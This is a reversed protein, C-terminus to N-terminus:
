RNISPLDYAMPLHYEAQRATNPSDRPFWSRPERLRPVAEERHYWGTLGPATLGESPSRERPAIAKEGSHQDATGRYFWSRQGPVGPSESPISEWSVAAMEGHYPAAADGHFWSAQGPTNPGARPPVERAGIIRGGYAADNGYM